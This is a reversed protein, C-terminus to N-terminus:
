FFLYGMSSSGPPLLQFASARTNTKWIIRWQEKQIFTISIHIRTSHSQYLPQNQVPWSHPSTPFSLRCLKRIQCSSPILHSLNNGEAVDSFVEAKENILFTLIQVFQRIKCCCCFVIISSHLFAYCGTKSLSPCFFYHSLSIHGESSELQGFFVLLLIELM